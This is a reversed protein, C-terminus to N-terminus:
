IRQATFQRALSVAGHHMKLEEMKERNKWYPGSLKELESEILNLNPGYLEVLLRFANKLEKQTSFGDVEVCYEYSYDDLKEGFKIYYGLFRDSNKSTKCKITM